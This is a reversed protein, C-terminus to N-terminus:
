LNEVEEKRQQKFVNGMRKLKAKSPKTVSMPLIGLAQALTFERQSVREKLPASLRIIYIVLLRETVM